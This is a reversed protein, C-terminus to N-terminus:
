VAIKRTEEIGLFREWSWITNTLGAVMCPTGRLTQHIRMFNYHFFHLAVAHKLNELKKSFANTLRTFRRMQMRMTLNQREIYSTSIDKEEPKGILPIINIGTIRAPSYRKENIIEEGYIKHIQAYDIDNGFTYKVANLYPKFSDTSLQFRTDIRTKLESMFSFANETTRRGVKFAPVLKTQADIGVFVFQDGYGSKNEYYRETFTLQKQKKGVFTWIEDVQILNSKLNIMTSDHIELAKKGASVLVRMITDRHVGTIREISRISNGEVLSSLILIQKHVPLTNM